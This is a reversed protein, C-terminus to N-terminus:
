LCVGYKKGSFDYYSCLILVFVSGIKKKNEEDENIMEKIFKEIIDTLRAM